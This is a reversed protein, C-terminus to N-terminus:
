QLNPLVANTNFNINGKKGIGTQATIVPYEALM